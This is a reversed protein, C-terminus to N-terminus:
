STRLAEIYRAVHIPDIRIIFFVPYFYARRIRIEVFFSVWIVGLIKHDPRSQFEPM